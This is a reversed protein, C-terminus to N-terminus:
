SGGQEGGNGAIQGLAQLEEVGLSHRVNDEVRAEAEALGQPLVVDEETVEALEHGGEGGRGQKHANGALAHDMTQELDCGGLGEVAGGDEVGEGQLGAGVDEADM